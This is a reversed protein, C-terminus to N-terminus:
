KMSLINRWNSPFGAKKYITLINNDPLGSELENWLDNLMTAFENFAKKDLVNYFSCVLAFLKDAIDTKNCHINIPHAPSIGAFANFDFTRQDHACLNRFLNIIKVNDIINKPFLKKDLLASLEQAINIQIDDRLYRYFKSIENFSLVNVLVWFPIFSHQKRYHCIMENKQKLSKDIAIYINKILEEAGHKHKENFNHINLYDDEKTGFKRSIVYAIKSKLTREVITTYRFIEHSLQKDFFWLIKIHEFSTEPLYKDPYYAKDLFIDKYANIVNYYNNKELFLKTIERDDIIMGRGILIDIQEDYTKFEIM